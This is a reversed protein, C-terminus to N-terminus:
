NKSNILYINQRLDDLSKIRYTMIDIVKDNIYYHIIRYLYRVFTTEIKCQFPQGLRVVLERGVLELGVLELEVIQRYGM